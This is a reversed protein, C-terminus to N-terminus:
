TYFPVAKMLNPQLMIVNIDHIPTIGKEIKAKTMGVVGFELGLISLMDELEEKYFGLAAM